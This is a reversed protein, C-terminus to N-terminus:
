TVKLILLSMITKKGMLFTKRLLLYDAEIDIIKVGNQPLIFLWACSFVAACVPECIYLKTRNTYM